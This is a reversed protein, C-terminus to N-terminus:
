VGCYPKLLKLLHCQWYYSREVDLSVEMRVRQREKDRTAKREIRQVFKCAAGTSIVSGAHICRISSKILGKSDCISLPNPGNDPRLVIEIVTPMLPRGIISQSPPVNVIGILIRPRALKGMTPLAVLSFVAVAVTEADPTVPVILPLM